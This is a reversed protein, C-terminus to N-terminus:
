PQRPLTEALVKYDRLLQESTDSESCLRPMTVDAFHAVSIAPWSLRQRQMVQAAEEPRGMKNLLMAHGVFSYPTDFILSAQEKAELAGADDDGNIKLWAIWNLTIWRIPNNPSMTDDFRVAGEIVSAPPVVCTYPIVDSLFRALDHGPDLDLVRRMAVHSDRIRGAHWHAQAINFMVAPHFPELRTALDIHSLVADHVAPVDYHPYFNALQALKEAMVSHATGLNPDRELALQMLEVKHEEWELSNAATPNPVWTAMLFLQQASLSEPDRGELFERIAGMLRLNLEGGMDDSVRQAIDDVNSVHISKTWIVRDERVNLLEVGVRKAVRNLDSVLGRLAFDAVANDDTTQSLIAISPNRVLSERLAAEVQATSTQEGEFGDLVLRVGSATASTQAESQPLLVFVVALVVATLGASLIAAALLAKNAPRTRTEAVKITRESIKPRYSGKPIEVSLTCQAADSREFSSLATRVRGMEVRVSSDITPDYDDPKNLADIGIAYAKLSDGAGSLEARILYELLHLRRESKGLVESAAVCRLYEAIQEESDM